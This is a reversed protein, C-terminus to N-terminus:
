PCFHSFSIKHDGFVGHKFVYFVVYPIALILCIVLCVTTFFSKIRFWLGEGKNLERKYGYEKYLKSLQENTACNCAM